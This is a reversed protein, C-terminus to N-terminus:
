DKDNEKGEPYYYYGVMGQCAPEYADFCHKFRRIFDELQLRKVDYLGLFQKNGVPKFPIEITEFVSV